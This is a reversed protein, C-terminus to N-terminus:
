SQIISLFSDLFPILGLTMLNSDIPDSEISKLLNRELGMGWMKRYGSYHASADFVTATIIREMFNEKMIFSLPM